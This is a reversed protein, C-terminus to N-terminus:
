ALTILVGSAGFVIWSCVGAISVKKFICTSGVTASAAGLWTATGGSTTIASVGLRATEGVPLQIIMNQTISGQTFTYTTGDLAGTPLTFTAAGASQIGCFHTGNESMLITYNASKQQIPGAGGGFGGQTVPAGAIQTLAM